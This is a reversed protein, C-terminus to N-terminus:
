LLVSKPKGPETADPARLYMPSVPVLQANGSLYLEALAAARLGLVRGSIVEPYLDAGPGVFQADPFATVLDKPSSVQPEGVRGKGYEAWYLEKRRANTVVVCPQDFDYAVADLSCIGHVPINRAFGFVIACAIGVRLGTFPGPGVGVVIDSVDGPSVGASALVNQILQAALEGHLNHADLEKEVRQGDTGLFAVSIGASTDIALVNM